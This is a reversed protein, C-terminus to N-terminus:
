LNAGGKRNAKHLKKLPFDEGFAHFSFLKISEDQGLKKVRYIQHTKLFREHRTTIFVKSGLFLWDQM